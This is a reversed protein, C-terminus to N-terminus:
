RTHTGRGSASSRRRGRSNRCRHIFAETTTTNGSFVSGLGPTDVLRMGAALLPSPVFVEVGNVAKANEPNYEESVYQRLDSVGIEGWSGDGAQVRARPEEGFRVVTPVTTVPVLGIPLIPEGVLANILTSKGRKFQGVCAVYFRGEAIRAALERAEDAVRNTGLEAALTALCLMRAAGDNDCGPVPISGADNGSTMSATISANDKTAMKPADPQV